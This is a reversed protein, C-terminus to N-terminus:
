RARKRAGSAKTATQKRREEKQQLEREGKENGDEGSVDGEMRGGKGGGQRNKEWLGHFREQMEIERNDKGKGEGFKPVMSGPLTFAGEAAEAEKLAGETKGFSWRIDNKRRLSGGERRL